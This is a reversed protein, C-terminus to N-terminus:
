FVYGDDIQRIRELCVHIIKQYDLRRSEQPTLNAEKKTRLVRKIIDADWPNLHYEMWIDWPQTKHKSYDSKGVNMDRINDNDYIFYNDVSEEQPSQNKVDKNM